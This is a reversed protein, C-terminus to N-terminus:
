KGTQMLQKSWEDEYWGLCETTFENLMRETSNRTLAKPMM